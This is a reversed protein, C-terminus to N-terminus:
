VFVFMPNPYNFSSLIIGLIVDDVLTMDDHKCLIVTNIIISEM